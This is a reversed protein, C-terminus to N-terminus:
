RPLGRVLLFGGGGSWVRSVIFTFPGFRGVSGSHTDNWRILDRAKVPGPAPAPTRSLRGDMDTAGRTSPSRATRSASRPGLRGRYLPDALIADAYRQLWQVRRTGISAADSVDRSDPWWLVEVASSDYPCKRVKYGHTHDKLGPGCPASRNFGARKLIAGVIQPTPPKPSYPM